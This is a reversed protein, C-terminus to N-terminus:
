PYNGRAITSPSALKHWRRPMSDERESHVKGGPPSKSDACRKDCLLLGLRLGPKTATSLSALLEYTVLRPLRQGADNTPRGQLWIGQRLRRLEAGLRQRAVSRRLASRDESEAAGGTRDPKRVVGSRLR